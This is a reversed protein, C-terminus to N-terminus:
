INASPTKYSEPPWFVSIRRGSPPKGFSTSTSLSNIRQNMNNMNNTNAEVMLTLRSMQQIVDDM